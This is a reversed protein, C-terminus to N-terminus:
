FAPVQLRCLRCDRHHQHYVGANCWLRLHGRAAQNGEGALFGPTRRPGRREPKNEKRDTEMVLRSYRMAGRSCPQLCRQGAAQM